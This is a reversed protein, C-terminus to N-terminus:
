AVKWLNDFSYLNLNKLYKKQVTEDKRFKNESLYRWFVRDIYREFFAESMNPNQSLEGWNVCYIHREFFAESINPNRSLLECWRALCINQPNSFFNQIDTIHREFFEESLNPNLLINEWHVRTIHREFFEESM